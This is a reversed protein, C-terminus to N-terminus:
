RRATGNDMAQQPHTRALALDRARVLAAREPGEAPVLALAHAYMEGARAYQGTAAYSDGLLSFVRHDLIMEGDADAAAWVRELTEIARGYDGADYCAQAIQLELTAALPNYPNYALATSFAEAAATYRGLRLSLAGITEYVRSWTVDVGLPRRSLQLFRVLHDIADEERTRFHALAEGVALHAESYALRYDPASADVERLAQRAAQLAAVYDKQERLARSRLIHLQVLWGTNEHPPYAEIARNFFALAAAPDRKEFLEVFGLREYCLSPLSAIRSPEELASYFMAVAEDVRDASLLVRGKQYLIWGRNTHTPQMEALENYYALARDADTRDAFGLPALEFRAFHADALLERVDPEAALAPGLALVERLDALADDPKESFLRVRARRLLLACRASTDVGDRRLRRAIMIEAQKIDGRELQEDIAELYDNM